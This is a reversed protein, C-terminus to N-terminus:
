YFHIIDSLTVQIYKYAPPIQVYCSINNIINKKIEQYIDITERDLSWLLNAWATIPARGQLAFRIFWIKEIWCKNSQDAGISETPSLFCRRVIM